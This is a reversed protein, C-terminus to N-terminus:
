RKSEVKFVLEGSRVLGLEDRAVREIEADDEQIRLLQLRLETNTDRLKKNTDTLNTLEGRLSVYQSLGSRLYLHYPLYGILIALGVALVLRAAWVLLLRTLSPPPLRRGHLPPSVPLASLPAARTPPTSHSSMPDTTSARQQSGLNKVTSGRGSVLCRWSGLRVWRLSPSM